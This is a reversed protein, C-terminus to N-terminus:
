TDQRPRLSRLGLLLRAPGAIYPHRFSFRRLSRWMKETRELNHLRAQQLKLTGKSKEAMDSNTIYYRQGCYPCCWAFESTMTQRYMAMGYGNSILYGPGPKQITEFHVPVNTRCRTCYHWGINSEYYRISEETKRISASVEGLM